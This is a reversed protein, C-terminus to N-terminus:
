PGFLGDRFLLRVCILGFLFHGCLPVKEESGLPGASAPSGDRSDGAILKSNISGNRRGISGSNSSSLMLSIMPLGSAEHHYSRLPITLRSGEMEKSAPGSRVPRSTM